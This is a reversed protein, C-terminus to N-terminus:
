CERTVEFCFHYWQWMLLSNTHETNCGPGPYIPIVHRTICVLKQYFNPMLTVQISSALTRLLTCYKQFSIHLLFTLMKKKVLLWWCRPYFATTKEIQFLEIKKSAFTKIVLWVGGRWTKLKLFTKPLLSSTWHEYTVYEGCLDWKLKFHRLLISSFLVKCVCSLVKASFIDKQHMQKTWSLQISKGLPGLLDWSHLIRGCFLNCFFFFLHKKLNKIKEVRKQVLTITVM